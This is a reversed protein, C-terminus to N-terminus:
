GGEERSFKKSFTIFREGRNQKHIIRIGTTERGMNGKQITALVGLLFYIIYDLGDQITSLAIRIASLSKHVEVIHFTSVITLQCEGASHQTSCGFKETKQETDLENQMSETPFLVRDCLSMLALFPGDKLARIPKLIPKLIM